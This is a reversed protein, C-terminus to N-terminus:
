FGARIGVSFTRITPYNSIDFYGGQVSYPDDSTEPDNGPYKTITFLNTGSAFLVVNKLGARDMWIAKTFHYNFTVTRLKLYSSSFLDLQSKYYFGDNLILRPENTSTNTPTYRDLMSINANSSGVFEVSSIHDGWLLKGGQSFTFYFQLEFNKYTFRQSIGGYYKPVASGIITNFDPYNNTPGTGDLKYIPDGIALYPFYGANYGLQQKYADLQAQNKIIGTVTLGTIQGLPKGQILTTNGDEIGTLNGIQTLDATANLKTVLSNNWTLNVGATWKFDNSRVIDGDLSIEVGTNKLGVANRLLSAYSSSPAIPLSLLDGGTQRNYYDFTATLRGNLLSVDLGADAERTVEWKIDQNGLQTPILASAGGYSLPSYLTRYMQDGINQTGTLGYSGRIKIDDIWKVKKLFKEQSIRWALAGSPFYSFKNGPGLKSSGDTRGTFTLLYKDSFSYNARLYFSLLYSQPGGPDDGRVILPTVASSLGTLVNDNPYGAATASFFSTKRTEYSEGALVTLNNNDGLQRTFTLTNEFFWNTLRSNANSGIGGAAADGYSSGIELFSPTFNRQNYTQSNLSVMTKFQLAKTIDYIGDVSGLLSFTKSNNTAKLLAVPNQFGLYSDGVNSFNTLNGDADYPSYDPRAKLAQDFAGDGINQNVYGMIINTTFRFNPGFDNELNIKGSVRHYDTNDVVGPTANYSISSFYKSSNGGGQVSVEANHSITIRTVKKIWDTNAPGFFAPDNLIATTNEPYTTEGAAKRAGADNQAAETLLMRYQAANLVTPTVPTSVTSYYTASIVPKMEKKGKKTTIIVVGGAGKSGYIATSSADKLVTISEIDDPNLGGLSNLGNVFATSLATSIGGASVVDNGIPSSIDYGPAVFNNQVQVPVGDIVYLPDNGGLVSSSGRVRVRVAGGPSGDSKTIQLGAAKGALANDITTFPIDEITKADIVSVAGTLDKKKISGYGVIVVQNLNSIDAEMTINVVTSNLTVDKTRYGIFRFMILNGPETMISYYGNEDSVTSRKNKPDFVTVGRLPSGNEDKIIGTLKFNNTSYNQAFVCFQFSILVVGITFVRISQYFWRATQQRVDM